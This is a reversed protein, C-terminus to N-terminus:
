ASTKDLDCHALISFWDRDYMSKVIRCQAPRVIKIYAMALCAQGFKSNVTCDSFVSKDDQEAIGQDSFRFLPCACLYCNLRELDYCKKNDAYLPCFDPEAKVMNDFDFYAFIAQQKNGHATFWFQYSM